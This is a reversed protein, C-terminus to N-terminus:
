ITLPPPVYKRVLHRLACCINMFIADKVQQEEPLEHFPVFCPHEKKETDKVPGYKWGNAEKEKLWAVHSDSPRSHPHEIHYKVGNIASRRQWEPSEEWSLQSNDKLAECYAKNAQHCVKAIDEITM